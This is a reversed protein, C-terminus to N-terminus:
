HTIALLVVSSFALLGSQSKGGESGEGSQQSGPDVRVRSRVTGGAWRAHAKKRRLLPRIALLSKKFVQPCFPDGGGSFTVAKVGMAAIDDVIELMKERPIFDQLKMDRGLQLEEARYACYSCSHNCRNTPKIRIHLPALTLGSERPLSELKDRFHFIKMRTYLIGM